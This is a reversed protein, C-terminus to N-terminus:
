LLIFTSGYLYLHVLNASQFTYNMQLLALYSFTCNHNLLYPELRGHYVQSSCEFPKNISSHDLYGKKLRSDTTWNSYTFISKQFGSEKGRGRREKSIQGIATKFGRFILREILPCKSNGSSKVMLYLMKTQTKLYILYICYKLGFTFVKENRILQLHQVLAHVKREHPEM